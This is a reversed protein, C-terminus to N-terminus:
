KNDNNKDLLENEEIPELADDKIALAAKESIQLSSFLTPNEIKFTVLGDKVAWDTSVTSVKNGFLKACDSEKKLRYRM